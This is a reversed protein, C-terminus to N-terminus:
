PRQGFTIAMPPPSHDTNQGTAGDLPYQLQLDGASQAKVGPTSVCLFLSLVAFIRLNM